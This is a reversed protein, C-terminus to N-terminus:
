RVCVNLVCVRARACVCEYACMCVCARVCARVCVCVCVCVGARRAQTTKGSGTEGVLVLTAHAELLYLVQRRYRAALLHGGPGPPRQEHQQPQQPAHQPAHRGGGGRGSTSPPGDAGRGPAAPFSVGFASKSRSGPRQFSM